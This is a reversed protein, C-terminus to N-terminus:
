FANGLEGWRIIILLLYIEPGEDREVSRIGNKQRKILVVFINMKKMKAASQQGFFKAIEQFISHEV